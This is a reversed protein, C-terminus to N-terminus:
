RLEGGGQRADAGVIWRIEVPGGKMALEVRVDDFEKANMESVVALSM